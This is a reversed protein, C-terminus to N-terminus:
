FFGFWKRKKIKVPSTHTSPGNPRLFDGPYYDHGLCDSDDINFVKACVAAEICWRGFYSGNELPSKDQDGYVYWWLQEKGRRNLEPYWNEVFDCLLLPQQEKPANVASLLRGYPRSHLLENGITRGPQRSAIVRDLLIDKGEGGVLAVLRSWQESTIDLLLAIGVLWFCWNYHNLNALDFVWDRCTKLNHEECIDSSLHNSLEWLELLPPFHQKLNALEDGGSYKRLILRLNDRSIDLAFQPDYVPNKSPKALLDVAKEIWAIDKEIRERWYVVDGLSDRTM